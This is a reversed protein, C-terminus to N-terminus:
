VYIGFAFGGMWRALLIQTGYVLAASVCRTLFATGAGRQALSDDSRDAFWTKLRVAAAIMASRAAPMADTLNLAM